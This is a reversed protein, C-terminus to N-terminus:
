RGVVVEGGGLVRRSVPGDVQRVRVDGSGLIAADLREASGSHIVDGSGAIAISLTTARGDRITVDGSGQIAINTPGDARSAIFDGSGAISVTLGERALGVLVDGAGAVAVSAQGAEYLRLDPSGSVAVSAQQEVREIDADGCGELRIEANRSPGVTLRVAGGANLHVDEPVRLEIVPLAAGSVRGQRRVDVEFAAGGGGVDCSAIRRRLGGDILLRRGQLRVQPAALPGANFVAVAVDDRDEPHVRVFAAVDRIQVEEARYSTWSQAAARQTQAVATPASLCVCALILVANLRM